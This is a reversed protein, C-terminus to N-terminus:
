WRKSHRWYESRLLALATFLELRGLLMALALAFKGMAPIEAYNGTAGLSGFAPDVSAMCSAIGFLSEEVTMGSATVVLSLLAVLFVYTFFFRGINIITVSPLRNKGYHVNLLMQPHLTRRLEAAVTKILVIWRCIKIGGATSGACGGTLFTAALLMKSFSPWLDYNDAVFGTTSGFSAM